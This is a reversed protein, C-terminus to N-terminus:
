RCRRTRALTDSSPADFMPPIVTSPVPWQTIVRAAEDAAM